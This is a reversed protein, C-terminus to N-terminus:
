FTLQAFAWFCSKPNVVSLYKSASRSGPDQWGQIRSPLFRIRFLCGPDAVSGDIIMFKINNNPLTSTRWTRFHYQNTHTTPWAQPSTVAESQSPLCVEEPRKIAVALSLFFGECWCTLLTQWINLLLSTINLLVIQKM